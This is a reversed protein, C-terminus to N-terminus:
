STSKPPPQAKASLPPLAVMPTWTLVLSAVWIPKLECIKLLLIATWQLVTEGHVLVPATKRM